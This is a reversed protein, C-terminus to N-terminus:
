GKAQGARMQESISDARAVNRDYADKAMSYEKEKMSKNFNFTDEALGLQKLGKYSDALGSALGGLDVLTDFTAENNKFFNNLSDMISGETIPNVSNAANQLMSLDPLSTPNGLAETVEMSLPAVYTGSQNAALGLDKIGTNFQPIQYRNGQSAALSNTFSM